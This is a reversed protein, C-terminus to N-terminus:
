VQKAVLADAVADFSSFGATGELIGQESLRLRLLKLLLEDLSEPVDKCTESPNRLALLASSFCNGTAERMSTLEILEASVKETDLRDLSVISALPNQGTLVEWCIVGFAFLDDPQLAPYYAPTTVTVYNCAGGKSELEGFYGPDIFKIGSETVIVNDPKLDGHYVFNSTKSLNALAKAIEVLTSITAEGTSIMQRLTRGEVHECQYYTLADTNVLKHFDVLNEHRINQLQEAQKVLLHGANLEAKCFAGTIQMLAETPFTRTSTTSYKGVQGEPKAVKFVATSGDVLKRGLFVWSFNGEGIQKEIFYGDVELGTWTFSECDFELDETSSNM